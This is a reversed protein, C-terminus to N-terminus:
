LAYLKKEPQLNAPMDLLSYNFVRALNLLRLYYINAILTDSFFFQRRPSLLFNWSKIANFVLLKASNYYLYNLYLMIAAYKNFVWYMNAAVLKGDTQGFTISLPAPLM